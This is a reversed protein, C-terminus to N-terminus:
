IEGQKGLAAGFKGWIQERKASGQMQVFGGLKCYDGQKRRHKLESLRCGAAGRRNCCAQLRGMPEMTGALDPGEDLDTETRRRM